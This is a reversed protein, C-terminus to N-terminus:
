YRWMFVKGHNCPTWTNYASVEEQGAGGEEGDEERGQEQTTLDEQEEESVVYDSDSSDWGKAQEEKGKKPSKKSKWRRSTVAFMGAKPSSMSTSDSDTTTGQEIGSGSGGEGGGREHKITGPLLFKVSETAPSPAATKQAPSPAQSPEPPVEYSEEPVLQRKTLCASLWDARLVSVTDPISDTKLLVPVRCHRTNKGVLIHTTSESLTKVAEGGHRELQKTLISTRSKGLGQELLLASVESLFDKSGVSM